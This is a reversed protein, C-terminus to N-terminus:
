LVTFSNQLFLYWQFLQYRHGCIPSRSHNASMCTEDSVTFTVWVEWFKQMVVADNVLLCQTGFHDAKPVHHSGNHFDYVIDTGFCFLM